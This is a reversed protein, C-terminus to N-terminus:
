NCTLVAVGGFGAEAPVLIRRPTEPDTCRWIAVFEKACGRSQDGLRGVDILFACSRLGDCEEAVIATGNGAPAGCNLGYSAEVVSIRTVANLSLPRFSAYVDLGEIVIQQAELGVALASGKAMKNTADVNWNPKYGGQQPRFVAVEDANTQRQCKLLDRYFTQQSFDLQWERQRCVFFKRGEKSVQWVQWQNGVTQTKLHWSWDHYHAFLNILNFQDVEIVPPFGFLGRFRNIQDQYLAQSYVPFNVLWSLINLTVLAALITTWLARVARTIGPRFRTPDAAVFASLIIFPFLFFEQRLMGGFPYRGAVGATMNMVLMVCLLILPASTERSKNRITLCIGAGALLVGILGPSVNGITPTFLAALEEGTRFLFHSISPDQAVDFMFGPVHNLRGGFPRYHVAYLAVAALVPLGFMLPADYAYRRVEARISSRGRWFLVTLLVPTVIAAALFFFAQYSTAIAITTAAAFATYKWRAMPIPWAALWDLYLSFALLIIAVGLSYARVELGMITASYSLGFAAASLVSLGSNRTLRWVIRAIFLTAALTGLISLVRYSLLSCGFLKTVIGLALYFIPPHANAVVEQWFAPWSEQRAIFVHWYSDYGVYQYISLYGLVLTILAVILGLGIRAITGFRSQVMSDPSTKM